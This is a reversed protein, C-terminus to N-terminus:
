RHQSKNSEDMRNVTETESFRSKATSPNIHHNFKYTVKYLLAQDEVHSFFLAHFSERFM